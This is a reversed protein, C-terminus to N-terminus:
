TNTQAFHHGVCIAHTTKKKKKTMEVRHQWNRQNIWNQNARQYKRVNILM